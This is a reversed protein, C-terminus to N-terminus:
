RPSRSSSKSGQGAGAVEDGAVPEAGQGLAAVAGAEDEEGGMQRGQRQGAAEDPEAEAGDPEPGRHEQVPDHDDVEECGEVLRRVGAGELGAPEVVGDVPRGGQDEAQRRRMETQLVCCMV